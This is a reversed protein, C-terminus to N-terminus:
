DKVFKYFLCAQAICGVVILIIGGLGLGKRQVAVTAVPQQAYAYSTPRYGYSRLMMDTVIMDAALYAVFSGGSGMYGYSGGQYVTNYTNGGVTRTQPVYSPRSAMATKSDKYDYKKSALKTDLASKAASRSNYTKGSKGVASQIEKDAKTYAPSKTDMKSYKAADTNSQKQAATLPKSTKVSSKSAGYGGTTKSPTAKATQTQTTAKSSKPAAKKSAVKKSAVKKPAFKKPTSKKGWGGSSRSSSSRSFGGSRSKAMIEAPVMFLGAALMTLVAVSRLTKNM